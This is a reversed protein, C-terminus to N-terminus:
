RFYFGAGVVFRHSLAGEDPDLIANFWGTMQDRAFLAVGWSGSSGFRVEVGPILMEEGNASSRFGPDTENVDDWVLVGIGLTAGIATGAGVPMLRVGIAGAVFNRHLEDDAVPFDTRALTLLGVYSLRRQWGLEAEASLGLGVKAGDHFEADVFASPAIGWSLSQAACRSPMLPLLIGFAAAVTCARRVEEPAVAIRRWTGVTM